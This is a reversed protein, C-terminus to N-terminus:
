LNDETLVEEIDVEEAPPDEQDGEDGQALLDEPGLTAKIRHRRCPPEEQDREVDDRPGIMQGPFSPEALVFSHVFTLTEGELPVLTGCTYCDTTRLRSVFKRTLRGRRTM